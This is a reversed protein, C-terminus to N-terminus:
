KGPSEKVEVVLTESSLIRSYGSGPLTGVLRIKFARVGKPLSQVPFVLVGETKGQKLPFARGPPAFPSQHFSYGQQALVKGESTTVVVELGDFVSFFNSKVALERGSANDLAVECRFLIDQERREAAGKHLLLSVAPEPDAAHSTLGTGVLSPLAVLISAGRIM